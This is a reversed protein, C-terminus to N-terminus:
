PTPVEGVSVPQACRQGLQQTQEVVGGVLEIESKSRTRCRTGAGGRRRWVPSPTPAGWTIPTQAQLTRLTRPPVALRGGQGDPFGPHGGTARGNGGSIHRHQDCYRRM